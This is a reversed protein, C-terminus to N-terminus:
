AFGLGLVLRLRCRVHRCTVSVTQVLKIEVLGSGISMLDFKPRCVAKLIKFVRRKRDQFKWNELLTLQVPGILM